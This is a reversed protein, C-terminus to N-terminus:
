LWRKGCRPLGRMASKADDTGFGDGDSDGEETVFVEDEAGVAVVEFLEQAAEGDVTDACGGLEDNQRYDGTEEQERRESVRIRGEEGADDVGDEDGAVTVERM